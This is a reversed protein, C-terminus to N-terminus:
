NNSVHVCARVFVCVCVCVCVCVYVCVYVCVCVCVGDSPFIRCCCLHSLLAKKLGLFGPDKSGMECRGGGGGGGRDRGCFSSCKQLKARVYVM